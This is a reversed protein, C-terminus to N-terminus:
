KELLYMVDQNDNHTYKYNERKIENLEPFKEAFIKSFDAKWLFGENGRYNINTVEAAYYEFGWIYKNSCRIMESMIKSHDNPAIHILVGNSVVIDFYGNKFPIDFGSGQIININKTLSKAREVAYHQLEIGYLNIYGMQQLLRLQMGINCGVELIKIDKPLHGIFESNMKTRSIGWESKYFHDYEEITWSNRDSYEKGFDGSWFEEQKTKM